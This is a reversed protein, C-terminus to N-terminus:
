EYNQAWFGQGEQWPVSPQYGRWGNGNGGVLHFAVSGPQVEVQAQERVADSQKVTM